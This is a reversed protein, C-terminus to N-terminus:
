VGSCKVVSEVVCGCCYSIVMMWLCLIVVLRVVKLLVIVLDLLFFVGMVVSMRVCFKMVCVIM